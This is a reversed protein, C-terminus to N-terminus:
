PLLLYLISSQPAKILFLLQSGAAGLWSREWQGSRGRRAGALSLPPQFFSYSAKRSCLYCLFSPNLDNLPHASFLDAETGPLGTWEGGGREGSGARIGRHSSQGSTSLCLIERHTWSARFNDDTLSLTSGPCPGCPWGHYRLSLTWPPKSFSHIFALPTHIGSHQGFGAAPPLHLISLSSSESAGSMGDKDRPM